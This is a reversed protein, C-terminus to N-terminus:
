SAAGSGFLILIDGENGERLEIIAEENGHNHSPKLAADEGGANGQTMGAAEWQASYCHGM